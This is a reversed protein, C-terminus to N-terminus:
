SLYLNNKLKIKIREIPEYKNSASNLKGDALGKCCILRNKTKDTEITKKFSLIFFKILKLIM